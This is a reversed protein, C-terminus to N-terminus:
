FIYDDRSRQNGNLKGSFNKMSKDFLHQQEEDSIFKYNHKPHLVEDGWQCSCLSYPYYKRGGLSHQTLNYSMKCNYVKYFHVKKGNIVGM